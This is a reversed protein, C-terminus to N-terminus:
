VEANDTTNLYAGESRKENRLEEQAFYAEEEAVAAELLADPVSADMFQKMLYLGLTSGWAPVIIATYTDIWGFASM